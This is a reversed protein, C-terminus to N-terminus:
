IQQQLAIVISYTSTAQLPVLYMVFMVTANARLVCFVLAVHKTVPTDNNACLISHDMMWM